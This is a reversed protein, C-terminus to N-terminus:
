KGEVEKVIGQILAPLGLQFYNWAETNQSFPSNCLREGTWRDVAAQVKAEVVSRDDSAVPQDDVTPAPSKKTM